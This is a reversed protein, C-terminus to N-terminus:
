GGPARLAQEYRYLCSCPCSLRESKGAYRLATEEMQLCLFLWALTILFWKVAVQVQAILRFEESM